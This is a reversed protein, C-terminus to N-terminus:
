MTHIYTSIVLVMSIHLYPAVLLALDKVGFLILYEYQKLIADSFCSPTGFRLVIAELPQMGCMYTCRQTLETRLLKSEVVYNCSVLVYM